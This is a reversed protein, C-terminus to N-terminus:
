LHQYHIQFLITYIASTYVKIYTIQRTILFDIKEVRKKKFKNTLNYIALGICVIYVELLIDM